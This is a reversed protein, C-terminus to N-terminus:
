RRVTIVERLTELPVFRVLAIGFTSVVIALIGIAAATGLLASRWNVMVRVALVITFAEVFEVTSALFTAIFVAWSQTPLVMTYVQKSRQRLMADDLEGLVFKRSFSV